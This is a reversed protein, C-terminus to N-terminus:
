FSIDHLKKLITDTRSDADTSLTPTERIRSKKHFIQNLDWNFKWGPELQKSKITNWIVHLSIMVWNTVWDCPQQYSPKSYLLAKSELGLPEYFFDELIIIKKNAKFRYITTTKRPWQTFGATWREYKEWSLCSKRPYNKMERWGEIGGESGRTQGMSIGMHDSCVVKACMEPLPIQQCGQIFYQTFSFIAPSHWWIKWSDIAISLHLAKLINFEKDMGTM